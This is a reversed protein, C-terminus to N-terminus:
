VAQVLQFVYESLRMCLGDDAAERATGSKQPYPYLMNVAVSQDM